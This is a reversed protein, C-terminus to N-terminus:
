LSTKVVKVRIESDPYHDDLIKDLTCGKIIKELSPTGSPYECNVQSWIKSYEKESDILVGDLDFLFGANTIDRM